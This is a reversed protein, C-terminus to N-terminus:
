PVLPQLDLGATEDLGLMLNANQVASTAAGKGLNDLAAFALVNSTRADLRATVECLNTGALRKTEPLRDAELVRIFPEEGYREALVGLLDTEKVGPAPRCVCTAVIGRVMPALHPIFTVTVESGTAASLSQEMEPVHKHGTVGYPRFNESVGTFDFGEGGARGAGSVGSAAYVTVKAAEVLSAESLPVLALLVAAPYCGPNAVTSAERIQDRNLETLGYAWDGLSEPALHKSGYFAEYMAPDKLRFDGSLDVVKESASSAGFLEMSRGHPLSSFVIDAGAGLAEEVGVFRVEPYGEIGPYLSSVEVGVQKSAAAAVVEIMPHRALV